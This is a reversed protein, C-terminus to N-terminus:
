KSSAGRAPATPLPAMPEPMDALMWAMVAMAAVNKRLEVPDVKDLMDAESHHWEFYREMTTEHAIGLVGKRMLPGIDAGGGGAHMRIAGLGAFLPALEQAREVARQTRATDTSDGSAARATLGFGVLREVGGDSEIAAVHKEVAPGLSDAYARGGRSGNEENTWLVVRLTRRPKLGLQRIIRLAEMAIVCGGGDDQAGQGVDWSDIHGGIVVVEDPKERGRIEGIVNHSLRQPLTDAAMELHVRVPGRALLRRIMDADEISVAAAPIHPVTDTYAYMAGTHPTRLSASGVTRVLSAVAGRRAATNAGGGRYRVTEGYTTFPVDWLVIKGRISDDPIKAFEAFSGAAIVDATIGGAPTGISGGLGLMAIRHPRPAVIEAREAGRVWVPVMVPQLRVHDLGDARMTDAAWRTARELSASGSLRNGIGDCLESLRQYAHDSTLAVGILRGADARYQEALSPRAQSPAATAALILPVAWISIM